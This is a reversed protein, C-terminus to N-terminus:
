QQKRLFSPIKAPDIPEEEPVQNHRAHKNVLVGQKFEILLDYEYISGYGM